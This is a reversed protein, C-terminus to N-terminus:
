AGLVLRLLGSGDPRASRVRYVIGAVTLTDGQQALPLLAAACCFTIERAEASLGGLAPAAYGNIFIGDVDIPAATGAARYSAATAFEDAEFFAALDAASEIM